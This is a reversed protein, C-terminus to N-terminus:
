VYKTRYKSKMTSSFLYIRDRLAGFDFNIIASFTTHLRNPKAANEISVGRLLTHTHITTNHTNTHTHSHIM